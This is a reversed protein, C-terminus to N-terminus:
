AFIDKRIHRLHIPREAPPALVFAAEGGHKVDLLVSRDV